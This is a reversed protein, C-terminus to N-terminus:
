QWKNAKYNFIATVYGKTYQPFHNRVDDPTPFNITQAERIRDLGTILM